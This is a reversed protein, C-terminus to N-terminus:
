LRSEYLLVQGHSFFKKANKFISLYDGAWVSQARAMYNHPAVAGQIRGQGFFAGTDLAYVHCCALFSRCESRADQLAAAEPAPLKRAFGARMAACVEFFFLLKSWGM